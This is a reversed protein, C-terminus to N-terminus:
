TASRVRPLHQDPEHRMGLDVINYNGLSVQGNTVAQRPAPISRCASLASRRAMNCWTTSPTTPARCCASMTGSNGPPAYNLAAPTQRLNTTRDFRDFANVFLVRSQAPNSTRRCGVTESPFSEGGANVAAVRFYFDADAALNTLTVSTTGGGSVSVPNGFGYGNTSVTFWM